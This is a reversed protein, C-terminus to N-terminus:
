TNGHNPQGAEKGVCANGIRTKKFAESKAKEMAEALLANTDGLKKKARAEARNYECAKCLKTKKNVKLFLGHRLCSICKGM